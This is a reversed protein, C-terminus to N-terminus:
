VTSAHVPREAKHEAKLRQKARQADDAVYEQSALAMIAYLSVADTVARCGLRDSEARRLLSFGAAQRLSGRGTVCGRIAQRVADLQFTGLM